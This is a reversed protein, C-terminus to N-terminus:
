EVATSLDERRISRTVVTYCLWSVSLCTCLNTHTHTNQQTGRTMQYRTMEDTRGLRDDRMPFSTVKGNDGSTM